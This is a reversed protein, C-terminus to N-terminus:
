YPTFRSPKAIRQAEDDSRSFYIFMSNVRATININANHKLLWHNVVTNNVICQQLKIGIEHGYMKIGYTNAATCKFTDTHVFPVIIQEILNSDGGFKNIIHRVGQNSGDPLSFAKGVFDNHLVFPLRSLTIGIYDQETGDDPCTTDVEFHLKKQMCWNNLVCVDIRSFGIVQATDFTSTFELKHGDIYPKHLSQRLDSIINGWVSHSEPVDRESTFAM